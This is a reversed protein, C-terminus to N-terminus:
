HIQANRFLQLLQKRREVGTRYLVDDDLREHQNRAERIAEQVDEDEAMNFNNIRNPNDGIDEIINHVVFLSEVVRYAQTLDRVAFNRLCPFRGKLRGFANEIAVRLSSM